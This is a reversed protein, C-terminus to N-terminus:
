FVGVFGLFPTCQFIDTPTVDFCMANDIFVIIDTKFTEVCMKM